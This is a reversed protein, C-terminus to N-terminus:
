NELKLNIRNVILGSILFTTAYIIGPFIAVWDFALYLLCGVGVVLYIFLLFLQIKFGDNSGYKEFNYQIFGFIGCIFLSIISMVLISSLYFIELSVISAIILSSFIWSVVIKVGAIRKKEMNRYLLNGSFFYITPFVVGLIISIWEMGLGLSFGVVGICLYVTFHFVHMIPLFRELIYQLFGFICCILLIVSLVVLGSLLWFFQIPFLYALLLSSILWSIVVRLGIIQLKEV